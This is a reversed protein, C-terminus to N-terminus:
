SLTYTNGASSTQCLVTRDAIHCCQRMSNAMPSLSPGEIYTLHERGQRCLVLLYDRTDHRGNIPHSRAYRVSLSTYAADSLACIFPLLRPPRNQQQAVLTRFDCAIVLSEAPLHSSLCSPVIPIVRLVDTAYYASVGRVLHLNVIVTSGRDPLYLSLLSARFHLLSPLSM